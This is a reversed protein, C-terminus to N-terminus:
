VGRNTRKWGLRIAGPKRAMNHLTEVHETTCALMLHSEYSMLSAQTADINHQYGELKVAAATIDDDIERYGTIERALGWDETNAVMMQLIQFNSGSGTLM